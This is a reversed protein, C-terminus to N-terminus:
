NEAITVPKKKSKAKDAEKAKDSDKDAVVADGKKDADKEKKAIKEKEAGSCASAIPASLTFTFALAAVALAIKKLMSTMEGLQPPSVSTQWRLSASVLVVQAGVVAGVISSKVPAM